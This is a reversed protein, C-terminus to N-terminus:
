LFVSLYASEPVSQDMLIERRALKLDDGVRRLVDNRRMSLLEYSSVNWRSCVLLVSSRVLVDNGATRVRVNNVLRRSRTAPVEAHANPSDMLRKVRLTLTPLSDDFLTVAPAFGPGQGRELTSRIPMRYSVDPALMALWDYLRGDDLLEAEDELFDLVDDFLADSRRVKTTPVEDHAGSPEPTTQAQSL